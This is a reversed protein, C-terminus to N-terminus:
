SFPIFTARALLSTIYLISTQRIIPAVNPSSVKQWLFTLFSEVLTSKFSCLYFMLFQVHQCAFTPLILKDFVTLMDHYLLKTRDWNLQTPDKPEHCETHMYQFMREMILDLTNAIPHKMKHATRAKNGDHDLHSETEDLSFVEQEIDMDMDDEDELEEIATKPANVDLVTLRCDYYFWM